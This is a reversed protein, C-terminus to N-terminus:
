RCVTISVDSLSREGLLLLQYPQLKCVHIRGIEFCHVFPGVTNTHLVRCLRRIVRWHVHEAVNWVEIRGFTFSKPEVVVNITETLKRPWGPQCSLTNDGALSSCDMSDGIRLCDWMQQPVGLSGKGSTDVRHYEM